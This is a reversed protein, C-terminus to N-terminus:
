SAHFCHSSKMESDHHQRFVVDKGKMRKEITIAKRRRSKKGGKEKKDRMRRWEKRKEM